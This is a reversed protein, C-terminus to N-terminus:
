TGVATANLQAVGHLVKFVVRDRGLRKAEYLLVDAHRMFKEYQPRRTWVSVAGVSFSIAIGSVPPLRGARQIRRAIRWCFDPSANQLIVAFEDGGTRVVVDTKRVLGGLVGSVDRLLTDGAHHGLNDNVAKFNDVDITIISIWKRRLFPMRHKGLRQDLGRRNLLGTLFDRNSEDQQRKYSLAAGCILTLLLFLELHAFNWWDAHDRGAWLEYVHIAFLLAAVVVIEKNKQMFESTWGRSIMQRARRMCRNLFNQLAFQISALGVFLRFM